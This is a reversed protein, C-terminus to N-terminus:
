AEPACAKYMVRVKGGPDFYLANVVLTRGQSTHQLDMNLSRPLQAPLLALSAGDPQIALALSAVLLEEPKPPCGKPKVGRIPGIGGAKIAVNGSFAISKVESAALFRKGGKEYSIWSPSVGLLREGSYTKGKTSQIIIKAPLKLLVAGPPTAAIAQPSEVPFVSVATAIAVTLLAARVHRRLM